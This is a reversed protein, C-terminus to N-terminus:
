RLWVKGVWGETGNRGHQIHSKGRPGPFIGDAGHEEGEEDEDEGGDDDAEGVDESLTTLRRRRFSSVHGLVGVEHQGVVERRLRQRQRRRQRRLAERVGLVLPGLLHLNVM